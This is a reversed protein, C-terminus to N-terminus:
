ARDFVLMVRGQPIRQTQADIASSLTSWSYAYNQGQVFGADNTYLLDKTSDYGTIVIVHYVNNAGYFPAIGAGGASHTMVPIIVPRGGALSRKIQDLDVPTVTPKLGFLQTGVAGVSTLPLDLVGPFTRREVSVIRGMEADAEAPPIRPRTDGKFYDSLMLIAAAECYEAHERDTFQNFPFQSTYPVKVFVSAPLPTPAPTSTPAAPAPATPGTLVVATSPAPHPAAALTHRWYRYGAAGAGGLVVVAVLAIM